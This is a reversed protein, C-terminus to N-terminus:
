QTQCGPARLSPTALTFAKQSSHLHLAQTRPKSHQAPKVATPPGSSMQPAALIRSGVASHSSCFFPHSSLRTRPRTLGHHTLMSPLVETSGVSVLQGTRLFHEMKYPSQFHASVSSDANLLFTMWSCTDLKSLTRDVKRSFNQPAM